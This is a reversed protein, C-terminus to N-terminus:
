VRLKGLLNNEHALIQTGAAEDITVMRGHHLEGFLVTAGTAIRQLLRDTEIVGHAFRHAVVRVRETAVRLGQAATIRQRGPLTIAHGLGRQQCTCRPMAPNGRPDAQRIHAIM